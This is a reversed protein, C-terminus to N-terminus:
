LRISNCDRQLWRATRVTADTSLQTHTGAYKPNALPRGLCPTQSVSTGWHPRSAFGQYSTQLVENGGGLLQIM